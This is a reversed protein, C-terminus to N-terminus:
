KRWMRKDELSRPYVPGRQVGGGVLAVIASGLGKKDNTGRQSIM